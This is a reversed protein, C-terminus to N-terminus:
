TTGGAEAAARLLNPDNLKMGTGAEIISFITEMDLVENLYERYVDSIHQEGKKEPKVEEFQERFEKDEELCIGACAVLIDFNEFDKSEPNTDQLEGFAKMVRKLRIINVPKLTVDTEDSLRLDVKDYAEKAM